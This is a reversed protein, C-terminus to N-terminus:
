IHILSLVQGQHKVLFCLVEMIKPEVKYVKDNLELKNHAPQVWFESLKFSDM